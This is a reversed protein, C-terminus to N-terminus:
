SPKLMSNRGSGVQSSHVKGDNDNPNMSDEKTKPADPTIKMKIENKLSNGNLLCLLELHSAANQPTM